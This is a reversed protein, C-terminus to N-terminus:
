KIGFRKLLKQISMADKPPADKAPPAAPPPPPDFESGPDGHVSSPRDASWDASVVAGGREEEDFLQELLLTV